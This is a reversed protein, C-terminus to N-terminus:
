KWRRVQGLSLGWKTTTVARIVEVGVGELPAGAAARPSVKQRLERETKPM